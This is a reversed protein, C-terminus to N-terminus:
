LIKRNPTNTYQSIGINNQTHSANSMFDAMGAVIYAELTSNLKALSFLCPQRRLSRLISLSNSGKLLFFYQCLYVIRFAFILNRLLEKIRGTFSAQQPAGALPVLARKQSSFLRHLIWPSIAGFPQKREMGWERLRRYGSQQFRPFEEWWLTLLSTPLM